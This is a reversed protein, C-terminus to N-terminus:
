AGGTGNRLQRAQESEPYLRELLAAYRDGAARDGLAREIHVALLLSEPSNPGVAFYHEIFARAQLSAGRTFALDALNLLADPFDGRLALAKRFLEEARTLNGSGRACVGANAFAVEPTKYAPNRAAEEFLKQAEAYRGRRCEFVAYANQMDANHPELRLAASYHRDAEDSQQLREYVLGASTQVSADRPNQILAKEIKERATVVDNQKLYAIALEANARAATFKPDPPPERQQATAAAALMLLLAPITLTRM